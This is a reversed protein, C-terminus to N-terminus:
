KAAKVWSDIESQHEGMWERALAELTAADDGKEEIMAMMWAIDDSTMKMQRLLEAAKPNAEIWDVNGIKRITASGGWFGEPDDLLVVDEGIPYRVFFPHPTYLYFLVPDTKKLRGEIAATMMSEAGYQQEYTEGL